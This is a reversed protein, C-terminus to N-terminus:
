KEKRVLVFCNGTCDLPFRVAHFRIPAPPPPQRNVAGPEGQRELQPDLEADQGQGGEGVNVAPVTEVAQTQPQINREPNELFLFAFAPVKRWTFIMGTQRMGSM